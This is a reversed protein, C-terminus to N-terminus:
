WFARFGMDSHRVVTLERAKCQQNYVDITDESSNGVTVTVGRNLVVRKRNRIPENSFLDVITSGPQAGLDKSRAEKRGLFFGKFPRLDIEQL